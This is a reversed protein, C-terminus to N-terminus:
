VSARHRRSLDITACHAAFDTKGAVAVPFVPLLTYFHLLGPVLQRKPLHQLPQRHLREEIVHLSALQRLVGAMKSRWFPFRSYSKLKQPCPM